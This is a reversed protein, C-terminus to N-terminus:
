KAAHRCVCRRVTEDRIDLPLSHKPDRFQSHEYSETGLYTSAAHLEIQSLLQSKIEDAVFAGLRM